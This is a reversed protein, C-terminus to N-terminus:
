SIWFMGDVSDICGGSLSAQHLDRLISVPRVVTDNIVLCLVFFVTLRKEDKDLGTCHESIVLFLAKGCM